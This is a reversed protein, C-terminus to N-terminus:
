LKPAAETKAEAKKDTTKEMEKMAEDSKKEVAAPTQTEMKPAEKCACSAFGIAMLGLFFYNKM